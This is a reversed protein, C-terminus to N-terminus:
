SHFEASGNRHLGCITYSRGGGLDMYLMAEADFDTGDPHRMHIRASVCQFRACRDILGAYVDSCADIYRETLCADPITTELEFTHDAHRKTFRNTEAVAQAALRPLVQSIHM